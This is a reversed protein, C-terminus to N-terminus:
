MHMSNTSVTKTMWERICQYFHHRHLTLQYHSPPNITPYHGVKPLERDIGLLAGDQSQPTVAM